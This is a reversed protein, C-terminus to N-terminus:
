AQEAIDTEDEANEELWRRHEEDPCELHYKRATVSTGYIGQLDYGKFLHVKRVYEEGAFIPCDCKSCEYDQAARQLSSDIIRSVTRKFKGAIVVGM